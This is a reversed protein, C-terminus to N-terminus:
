VSMNNIAVKQSDNQLCSVLAGFSSGDWNTNKALDMCDKSVFGKQHWQELSGLQEGFGPNFYNANRKHVAFNELKRSRKHMAFHEGRRSLIFLLTVIAVGILVHTKNLEM